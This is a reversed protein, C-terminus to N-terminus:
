DNCPLMAGSKYRSWYDKLKEKVKPALIISGIINPFALSLIMLDSFDLVNSLKETAGVIVFGVFFLRFVVVTKLGRDGFHDLLYIWGREGYYCWSIMTSYAFLTVCITLVYPFWPIVTAFATATLTVGKQTNDLDAAGQLVEPNDWVGTIIVVLATMLCVIITDIVPGIMGVIGERVPEETKAAAHAIAASGLGGENSFAARKVGMILVGALGGFFANNSFAM